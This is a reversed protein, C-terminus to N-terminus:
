PGALPTVEIDDFLACGGGVDGGETWITTLIRGHTAGEPARAAPLTVRTWRDAAVIRDIDGTTNFKLSAAEGVEVDEGQQNRWEIKVEGFADGWLADDAVCAVYASIEYRNGAKVPFDQYWGSRKWLRLFNDGEHAGLGYYEQRLDGEGWMQWGVEGREFGLNVLDVTYPSAAKAIGAILAIACVLYLFRKRLTM